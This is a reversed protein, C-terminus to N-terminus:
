SGPAHRWIAPAGSRTSSRRTPAYARSTTSINLMVFYSRVPELCYPRRRGCKWGLWRCSAWISSWMAKMAGWLMLEIFLQDMVGNPADDVQRMLDISLERRGSTMWLNAFAVIRGELRLVAVPFRRIYDADFRGLSFGKERANKGRLWQVSIAQLEDIISPVEVKAVVVAFLSPALPLSWTMLDRGPRRLTRGAFLLGPLGMVGVLRQGDGIAAIGLITSVGLITTWAVFGIIKAIQGLITRLDLHALERHILWIALGFLGLGLLMLWANRLKEGLGPLLSVSRMLGNTPM